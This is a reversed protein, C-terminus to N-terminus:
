KAAPVFDVAELEAVVIPSDYIPLNKFVTGGRTKVINAAPIEYVGGTLIDVWVPKKFSAKVEVDAPTTKNFNTPTCEDYWVVFATGGRPSYGFVSHSLGTKVSVAKNPNEFLEFVSVLNQVAYYATKIKVVNHKEDTELLGKVNLMKIFDTAAYHMDSITFCSTWIGRGHDGLMRRLDWKAQSLETWPHKTLAGGLFGKSPAGNEGQRLQVKKSYKKLIEAMKEVDAYSNEPRFDYGHYSLWDFLELKGADSLAKVYEEFKEPVIRALALGSIKANPDNKRIIEATRVNMDVTDAVTRKRDLDPENWMEWEVRGAYRKSMADVWADWAAKAEPSSPMGGKLFPTGGGKYITNGYSTQIWPTIGLAICEDVIKDLWAFDYVGKQRETKAWGGQLRIHKMGLPALYQKYKDFDAYDRDLTEGGITLNNRAEATSKPKLTGLRTYSVDLDTKVRDASTDIKPSATGTLAFAALAATLFLKVM